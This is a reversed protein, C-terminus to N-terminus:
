NVYAELQRATDSARLRRLAKKQIQRVRERSLGYKRGTEQLSTLTRGALGFRDQLICTERDSLGALASDLGDHLAAGALAEEPGPASRDELGAGLRGPNEGDAAPGDLSLTGRAAQMLTRVEGEEVRLSEAIESLRPERGCQMMREHRLEEMRSLAGARNGPVRILRSNEPIAKLIAQRIWWAAYSVFRVGRDPDFRQAAHILGINGENILDELPVGRSRYRKAVLIVFRLNAQILHQRAKLDGRAALCALAQEDERSLQPIRGLERLYLGMTTQEGASAGKDSM